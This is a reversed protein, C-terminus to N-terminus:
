HEGAFKLVKLNMMKSSDVVRIENEDPECLQQRLSQIWDINSVYTQGAIIYEKGNAYGVYYRVGEAYDVSTTWCQGIHDFDIDEISNVGDISRYLTILKGPNFNDSMEEFESIIQAICYDAHKCIGKIFEDDNYEWNYPVEDGDIMDDIVWDMCEGIAHSKVLFSIAQEPQRLLSIQKEFPLKSLHYDDQNTHTM